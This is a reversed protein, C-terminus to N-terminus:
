YLSRKTIRRLISLVNQPVFGLIDWRTSPLSVAPRQEQILEKPCCPTPEFSGMKKLNAELDALTAPRLGHGLLRHVIREVTGINQLSGDRFPHMLVSVHEFGCRRSQMIATDLMNRISFWPLGYTQVPIPIAWIRGDDCTVLTPKTPRKPYSILRYYNTDFYVFYRIGARILAPITDRNM